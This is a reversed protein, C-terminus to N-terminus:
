NSVPKETFATLTKGDYRYLGVERTGIWVNNDKDVFLSEVSSNSMKETSFAKFKKGDYISICGEKLGNANKKSGGIWLNDGKDLTMTRIINNCFGDKDTFRKITKGDYQSIGYLHPHFIWFAGNKDELVSNATSFISKDKIIEKYSKTIM